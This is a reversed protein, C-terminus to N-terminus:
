IELIEIMHEHLIWVVFVAWKATQTGMGRKSLYLAGSCKQWATVIPGPQHLYIEVHGVGVNTKNHHDLLPQLSRLAFVPLGWMLHSHLLDNYDDNSWGEWEYRCWSCPFYRTRRRSRAPGSPTVTTITPSSLSAATPVSSSSVESVLCM